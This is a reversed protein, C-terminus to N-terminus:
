KKALSKMLLKRTLKFFDLAHPQRYDPYTWECSRFNGNVYQFHVDGYIGKGLYLRHSFNKTTALVIKEAALYGPDLNVQRKGDVAYQEELENTWLKIDPLRDPRILKDFSFFQKKLHDGMEPAYYSTFDFDFMPSQADIEGFEHVVQQLVALLQSENKFTVALFLKVDIADKPKGM